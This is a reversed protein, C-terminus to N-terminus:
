MVIPLFIVSVVRFLFYFRLRTGFTKRWRRDSIRIATRAADASATRAMTAMTSPSSTGPCATPCAAPNPRGRVCEETELQICLEVAKRLGRCRPKGCRRAHLQLLALLPRGRSTHPPQTSLSLLLNLQPILLFGLVALVALLVLTDVATAMSSNECFETLHRSSSSSSPYSTRKSRAYSADAARRHHEFTRLFEILSWCEAM